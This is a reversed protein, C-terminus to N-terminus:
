LESQPLDMCFSLGMAESVYFVKGERIMLFFSSTKCRDPGCPLSLAEM